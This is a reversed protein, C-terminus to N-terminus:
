VQDLMEGYGLNGIDDMNVEGMDDAFGMTMTAWLDHYMLPKDEFSGGGLGMQEMPGTFPTGHDMGLASSLADTMVGSGSTQSGAYFDANQQGSWLPIYQNMSGNLMPCTSRLNRNTWEESTVAAVASMADFAASKEEFKVKVSRLVVRLASVADSKRPKKAVAASGRKGKADGKGEQSEDEDEPTETLKQLMEGFDLIRRAQAVDYDRCISLMPFSLRYAFIVAVIFRTYDAGSLGGFERSTLSAVHDFIARVMHAAHLLRDAPVRETYNKVGLKAPVHLLPPAAM